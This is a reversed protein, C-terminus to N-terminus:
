SIRVKAIDADVKIAKIVIGEIKEKM